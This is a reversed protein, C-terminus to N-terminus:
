RRRLDHSDRALLWTVQVLRGILGAARIMKAIAMTM